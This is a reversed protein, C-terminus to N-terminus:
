YGQIKSDWEFFEAQDESSLFQRAYQAHALTAKEHAMTRDSGARLFLYETLEHYLVIERFKKPVGEWMWISVTHGTSKRDPSVDTTIKFAAPRKEGVSLFEAENYDDPLISVYVPFGKFEFTTVDDEFTPIVLRETVLGGGEPSEIKHDM